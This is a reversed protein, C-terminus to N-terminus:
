NCADKLFHQFVTNVNERYIERLNNYTRLLKGPRKKRRINIKKRYKIKSQEKKNIRLIQLLM